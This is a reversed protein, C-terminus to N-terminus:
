ISACLLQASRRVERFGELSPHGPKRPARRTAHVGGVRYTGMPHDRAASRALSRTHSAGEAAMTAVADDIRPHRPVARSDAAPSHARRALPAERRILADLFRRRHHDLLVVPALGEVAGLYDGPDLLCALLPRDRHLRNLLYDVSDFRRYRLAAALFDRTREDATGYHVFQMADVLDRIHAEGRDVTGELIDVLEHVLEFVQDPQALLIGRVRRPKLLFLASGSRSAYDVM